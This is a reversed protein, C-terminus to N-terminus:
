NGVPPAPQAETVPLLMDTWGDTGDPYWAVDVYGMSLIRKAANWSMWCDRLCYVVILKTRDGATAREVNTRLYEKTVSALEGYGTDPLWISGPIDLRPKDRWITGPPLNAPRPARPLVDIFVAAKDRWLREAAVTSIVRAGALTAPTPARYNETRYGAPEPPPGEGRGDGAAFVALCCVLALVARASSM